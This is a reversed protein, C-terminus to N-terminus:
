MEERLGNVWAVREEIAFSNFSPLTANRWTEEDEWETGVLAHPLTGDDDRPLRFIDSHFHWKMGGDRSDPDLWKPIQGARWRGADTLPLDASVVHVTGLQSGLAATASRVAGRLEGNDRWRRAKGRLSQLGESLARSDLATHFISSTADVYLYLLDIPQPRPIEAPVLFSPITGTTYFSMLISHPLRSIPKLLRPPARLPTVRRLVHSDDLVELEEWLEVEDLEAAEELLHAAAEREDGSYSTNLNAPEPGAPLSPFPSEGQQTTKAGFIGLALAAHDPLLWNILLYSIALVGLLYCVRSPSLLLRSRKRSSMAARPDHSPITSTPYFTAASDENRASTTYRPSATPEDSTPLPAYGQLRPMAVPSRIATPPTTAHAWRV